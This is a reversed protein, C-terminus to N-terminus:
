STVTQLNIAIFRKISTDNMSSWKFSDRINFKNEARGVDDAETLQTHVRELDRMKARGREYKPM